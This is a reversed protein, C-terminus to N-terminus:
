GEDAFVIHEFVIKEKENFKSYESEGFNIERFIYSTFNKGKSNRSQVKLTQFFNLHSVNYKEVCQPLCSKM